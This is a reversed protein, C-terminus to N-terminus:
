KLRFKSTTFLLLAHVCCRRARPVCLLSCEYFVSVNKGQSHHWLWLRAIFKTFTAIIRHAIMMPKQNISEAVIFIICQGIVAFEVTFRHYQIIPSFPLQKCQGVRIWGGAGNAGEPSCFPPPSPVRMHTFPTCREKQPRQKTCANRVSQTHEHM